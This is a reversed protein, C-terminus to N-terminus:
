IGLDNSIQGLEAMVDSAEGEIAAAMTDTVHTVAAKADGLKKVAAGVKVVGDARAQVVGARADDMLAKLSAAFSGPAPTTMPRPETLNVIPLPTAPRNLALGATARIADEIEQDTANMDVGAILGNFGFVQRGLLTQSTLTEIGPVDALRTKLDSITGMHAM